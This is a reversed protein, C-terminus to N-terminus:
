GFFPATGERAPNRGSLLKMYPVIRTIAEIDEINPPCPWSAVHMSTLDLIIISKFKQHETIILMMGPM